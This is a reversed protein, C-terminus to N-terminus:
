SLLLFLIDTECVPCMLLADPRIGSIDVKFRKNLLQEAIKIVAETARQLIGCLGPAEKLIDPNFNFYRRCLTAIRLILVCDALMPSCDILLQIEPGKSIDKFILMTVARRFQIKHLEMKSIDVTTNLIVDKCFVIIQDTLDDNELDVDYKGKIHGSFTMTSFDFSQLLRNVEELCDANNRMPGKLTDVSRLIDLSRMLPLFVLNTPIDCYAPAVTGELFSAHVGNPSIYLGNYYRHYYNGGAPPSQYIITVEYKKKTPTPITSKAIIGDESSIYLHNDYFCVGTIPKMIDDSSISCIPKVNVHSVVEALYVRTGKAVALTGNKFSVGGIPKQDASSKCLEYQGMRLVSLLDLQKAYAQYFACVVKGNPFGIVLFVEHVILFLLISILFVCSTPLLYNEIDIDVIKICNPNYSQSSSYSVVGYTRDVAALRICNGDIIPVSVDWFSITGSKHLATLLANSSRQMNSEPKEAFRIKKSWTSQLFSMDDASSLYENLTEYELEGSSGSENYGDPPEFFNRRSESLLGVSQSRWFEFWPESLRKKGSWNDGVRFAIYLQYDSTVCSFVARSMQDIGTPSWEANRYKHNRYELSEVNQSTRDYCSFAFHLVESPPNANRGVFKVPFAFSDADSVDFYRISCDIHGPRDATLENVIKPYPDYIGIADKFIFLFECDDSVSFSGIPIRRKPVILKISECYSNM